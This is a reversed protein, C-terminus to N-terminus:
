LLVNQSCRKFGDTSGYSIITIKRVVCCAVTFTIQRSTNNSHQTATGRDPSRVIVVNFAMDGFCHFVIQETTIIYGRGHIRKGVLRCGYGMRCTALGGARFYISIVIGVTHAFYFM